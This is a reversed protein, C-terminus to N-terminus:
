DWWGDYWRCDVADTNGIIVAKGNRDITWHVGKVYWASTGLGERWHVAASRWTMTWGSQIVHALRGAYYHYSVTNLKYSHGAWWSISENNFCNARSHMTFQYLGAEASSYVGISLLLGIGIRRM